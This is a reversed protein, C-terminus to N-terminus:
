AAFDVGYTKDLLTELRESKNDRKRTVRVRLDGSQEDYARYGAEVGGGWTLYTDPLNETNYSNQRARTPVLLRYRERTDMGAQELDEAVYPMAAMTPASLVSGLRSLPTRGVDYFPVVAAKRLLGEQLRRSNVLPTFFSSEGAAVKGAGADGAGYGSNSIGALSGDIEQRVGPDLRNLYHALTIGLATMGVKGAFRFLGKFFSRWAAPVAPPEAMIIRTPRLSALGVGMAGAGAKFLFNRRGFLAPADADTAQKKM